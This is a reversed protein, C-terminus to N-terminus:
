KITTKQTKSQNQKKKSTARCPQKLSPTTKCSSNPEPLKAAEQWEKNAAKRDTTPAWRCSWGTGPQDQCCSWNRPSNTSTTSQGEFICIWKEDIFYFIPAFSMQKKRRTTNQSWKKGMMRRSTEPSTRLLQKSYISWKLEKLLLPLHSRISIQFLQSFNATGQHFKQKAKRKRKISSNCFLGGLRTIGTPTQHQFFSKPSSFSHTVLHWLSYKWPSPKENINYCCM